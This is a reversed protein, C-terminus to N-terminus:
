KVSYLFKVIQGRTCPDNIGFQGKKPGTTYGKTVGNQSGWLIAKYYPNSSPVDSFPSKSVPNPAPQKKYRWIFSMIQGRTCTDNIGFKGKNPGSSYGKTIGNQQAWLVAKFYAHTKPVDPFPTTSTMRPEPRKALNWLFMVAHGRTCPDNIGFRGDSYGKTIGNKAAWYIANYYPHTPDQVDTFGSVPEVSPNESTLVVSKMTTPVETYSNGSKDYMVIPLGIPNNSASNSKPTTLKKLATCGTLMEKTETIDVLRPISFGSINLETLSSCGAFMQDIFELSSTDFNSLNLKKLGSCNAFMGSMDEVHSTIFASVDLATLSKCDYFMYNMDTVKDTVFFDVTLSKLSSCGSFMESMYTVNSTDFGSVDFTTMKSCNFFLGAMDSVKSTDLGSLDLTTLDTFDAFLYSSDEPLFLTGSGESLRISTVGDLADGITDQWYSDLTGNKSNLLLESGNIEAIVSDKSGEGVKWTTGTGTAGAVEDTNEETIGDITEPAIESDPTLVEEAPDANEFAEEVQPGNDNEAEIVEEAPEEVIEVFPAEEVVLDDALVSMGTTSVCLAALIGSAIIRRWIKRM